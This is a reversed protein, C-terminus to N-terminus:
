SDKVKILAAKATGSLMPDQHKAFDELADVLPQVKEREATISANHWSEIAKAQSESLGDVLLRGKGSWGKKTENGHYIGWKGAGDSGAMWEGQAEDAAHSRPLHYGIIEKCVAVMLRGNPTNPNFERTEKRTEYGFDPALKEYINHFTRALQEANDAAHQKKM